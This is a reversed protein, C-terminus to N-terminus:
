FTGKEFEERLKNSFNDNEWLNLSEDYVWNLVKSLTAFVMEDVAEYEEPDTSLTVFDYEEITLLNRVKDAVGTALILEEREKDHVGDITVLAILKHLENRETM